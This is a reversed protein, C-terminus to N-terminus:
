SAIMKNWLKTWDDLRPLVEAYDLEIQKAGAPRAILAAVEPTLRGNPNSPAAPLVGSGFKGELEPDATYDLFVHGWETAGANKVIGNGYVVAVDGTEPIAYEIPKGQRKLMFARANQWMAVDVEGNALMQMGEQSTSIFRPELRDKITQIIKLGPTINEYSGGNALALAVTIHLGFHNFDDIFIRGKYRDDVLDTWNRPPTKVRDRNYIMGIGFGIYGLWYKKKFVSSMPAAKPVKSYDVEELLGDRSAEFLYRDQLDILHFKPRDRFTRLKAYRQPNEGIDHILKIGTAATYPDEFNDKVWQGYDGGYTSYVLSSPKEAGRSSRGFAEMAALTAAGAMFARRSFPYSTLM